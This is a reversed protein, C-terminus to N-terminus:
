SLSVNEQIWDRISNCLHTSCSIQLQRSSLAISLRDNPKWKSGAIRLSFTRSIAPGDLRVPLKITLTCGGESDNM